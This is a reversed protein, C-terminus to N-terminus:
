IFFILIFFRTIAITNTTRGKTPISSLNTFL